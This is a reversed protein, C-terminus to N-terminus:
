AIAKAEEIRNTHRLHVKNELSIGILRTVIKLVGRPRLLKKGVKFTSTPRVRLCAEKTQLSENLFVKQSGNAAFINIFGLFDEGGM